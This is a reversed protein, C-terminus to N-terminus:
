PFRIRLMVLFSFSAVATALHLVERQRDSFRADWWLAVLLTAPVAFGAMIDFDGRVGGVVAPNFILALLLLGGLGAGLFLTEQQRARLSQAMAFPVVFLLPCVFLLLNLHSIWYRPSGFVFHAASRQAERSFAIFLIRDAGGKFNGYWAFRPMGTGFIYAYLLTAGLASFPLLCVLGLRLLRPPQWPSRADDPLRFFWDLCLLAHAGTVFCASGHSWVAFMLILAEIWPPRRLDLALYRLGALLYANIFAYCWPTVEMFGAFLIATPTVFLFVVSSWRSSHPLAKPALALMAGITFMGAGASALVLGLAKPDLTIGIWRDLELLTVLRYALYHSWRGLPESGMIFPNDALQRWMRSDGSSVYVRFRVCLFGVAGVVLVLGARKCWRARMDNQFDWRRSVRSLILLLLAFASSLALATPIKGSPLPELAWLWDFRGAQGALSVLAPTVVGAFLCTAVAWLPAPARDPGSGDSAKRGEQAIGKAIDIM